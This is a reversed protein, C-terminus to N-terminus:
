QLVTGRLHRKKYYKSHRPQFLSPHHGFQMGDWELKDWWDKECDVAVPRGYQRRCADTAPLRRLSWCGRIYITELNPAFMKAECILQLSPLEHLYLEKLKPFALIGKERKTAIEKLFKQEVPFVQRLNGCCVIHLIELQNSLDCKSFLALVYVLRPCFHLHIARVARFSTSEYRDPRTWRARSWISRVMLLHSAWFIELIWFYISEDNYDMVFVTDLKHCREVCCWKLWNMSPSLSMHEPGVTTTISSSDHVHLSQVKSMVFSIIERGKKSVTKTIDTIGEGIEMHVDLPQFQMAASSSGDIQTTLQQETSIDRYAFPTPVPSGAALQRTSSYRRGMKEEQCSRGDGKFTSSLCLNLKLDFFVSWLFEMSQLFRLDAIAVFAHCYEKGEGQCVMLSDCPSPKRVVQKGARTDICLLRLQRMRTPWSISRLQECGVLFVRQLKGVDTLDLLKVATHSLDLEELNPLSGRLRFNVLRACGAFSIRCAKAKKKHDGGAQTNLYFSELSPPLGQPGVHELEVCGDLVLTKLNTASSLSPLFQMTSNGSLDLLEIKVMDMFEDGRGTEWPSTPEVVRLRRLNPLRRWAFNRHWIRGKNIHVERIDTAVVSEKTEIPFDLEWDTHSVDLVWLRRFIELARAGTEEEEEGLNQQAVCRDLGLFRLNRCCHFPPSSFSFNCGCLKLVRLQDMKHFSNDALQSPSAIFLSTTRQHPEKSNSLKVIWNKASDHRVKFNPYIDKNAIYDELRIHEQLASALEWAQNDQGGKVIGDCVWYSSAHTALNYDIIDGIGGIRKLSLLYMCCGTAIEPTIGLGLKNTYLAIERAEEVVLANLNTAPSVSAELNLHSNHEIEKMLERNLHLRGRFTWLVKTGFVEPQPIGCSTLDVIGNSGNHFVVLCRYQALYRAIARTVGGIEARSGQDVGSFDDEEDQMDFNAALQQSLKLEDAIARQLARQSEWRSCDIHIVKDFTEWLSPPPHEAIARLVSSAGLGNWGDFYITNPADNSTDELYPVIEQVATQVDPASIERLNLLYQQHYSPLSDERMWSRTERFM